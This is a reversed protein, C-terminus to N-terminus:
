RVIVIALRDIFDFTALILFKADPNPGFHQREQIYIRSGELRALDLLIAHPLELPHVHGGCPSQSLDIFTGVLVSALLKIYVIQEYTKKQM